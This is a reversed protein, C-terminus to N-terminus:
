IVCVPKIFLRFVIQGPDMPAGLLHVLEHLGKQVKGPYGPLLDLEGLDIHAFRGQGNNRFQALGLGAPAHLDADM